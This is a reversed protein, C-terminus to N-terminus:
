GHYVAKNRLGAGAMARGNAYLRAANAAAQDETVGDFVVDDPHCKHRLIYKARDGHASVLAALATKSSEVCNKRSYREERDMVGHLIADAEDDSGERRGTPRILEPMREGRCYRTKLTGYPIQFFDALMPMTYAKGGVHLLVDPKRTLTSGYVGREMRWQIVEAPIGHQKALEMVLNTHKM